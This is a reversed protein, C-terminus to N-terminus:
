FWLTAYKQSVGTSVTASVGWFLWVSVLCYGFPFWVNDSMVLSLRIGDSYIRM